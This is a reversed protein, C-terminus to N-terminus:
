HMFAEMEVNGNGGNSGNPNNANAQLINKLDFDENREASKPGNEIEPFSCQFQSPNQALNQHNAALIDTANPM